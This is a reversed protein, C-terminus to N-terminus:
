ENEEVPVPPERRLHSVVQNRYMEKMYVEPHQMPHGKNGGAAVEEAVWRECIREWDTPYMTKFAAIFTEESLDYGLLQIVQAVKEKKRNILHPMM